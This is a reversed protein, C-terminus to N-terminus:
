SYAMSWNMAQYQESGRTAVTGMGFQTFTARSWHVRAAPTLSPLIKRATALRPFTHPRPMEWFTTQYTTLVQQSFAPSSCM